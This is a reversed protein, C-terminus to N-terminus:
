PDFGAERLVEALEGLGQRGTLTGPLLPVRVLDPEDFRVALRALVEDQQARRRALVGTETEPVVRNVIVQGLRLGTEAVTEAARLTETLPLHEPVLVLHVLAEAALRSRVAELRARRAHLRELLPDPQEEARGLLGAVMRDADRAKTRQRALGEIWPALLAPLSLLRLMHGTPASDVVLDDWRDGVQEVLETLRDLLASEVTGPSETARALHRRVAPLVERPLAQEADTTIEAIRRRAQAEGSIEAAWLLPAVARPEEGLEGGLADGLSHAPDTSVLLTRRGAGARAVAFAAALTTKGVGGKGGFFRIM